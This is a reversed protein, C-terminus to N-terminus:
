GSGTTATTTDLRFQRAPLYEDIALGLRMRDCTNHVLAMGADDFIAGANMDGQPDATNSCDRPTWELTQVSGDDGSARITYSGYDFTEDFQIATMKPISYRGDIVMTGDDRAVQIDIQHRNAGRNEVVVRERGTGNTRGFCGALLATTGAAAGGVFRRRTLVM